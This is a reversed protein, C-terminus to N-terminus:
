WGTVLQVSRAALGLGITSITRKVSTVAIAWLAKGANVVATMKVNSRSPDKMTVTVLNAVKLDLGLTTPRVASVTSVPSALSASVSGPASTVSGMPLVWLTATVGRAAKGARCTISALTVLAVTGALCM